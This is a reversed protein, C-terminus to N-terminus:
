SKILLGISYSVDTISQHVNKLYTSYNDQLTYCSANGFGPEETPVKLPNSKNLNLCLCRNKKALMPGATFVSVHAKIM